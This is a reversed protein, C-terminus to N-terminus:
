VKICQCSVQWRRAARARARSEMGPDDAAQALQTKLRRSISQLNGQGTVGPTLSNRLRSVANCLSEISEQVSTCVLTLWITQSQKGFMSADEGMYSLGPRSSLSIIAHYTM